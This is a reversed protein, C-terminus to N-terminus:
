LGPGSRPRSPSPAEQQALEAKVLAEIFEFAEAPVREILQKRRKKSIAGGNQLAWGILLHQDNSRLDFEENVARSIRDFSALFETEHRLDVNLAEEAMRFGFEVCPTADWYRYISPQGKFDFAFQDEDIWTVDWLKRAPKSFSQLALLYQEEHRKMAISVPLLLGPELQGSQCLAHHFQFRSLRGNGDMYPHLFVFGFSEVSAAVIPDIQKSLGNAMAMFAPMLSTLLDPAPPVYTVSSAGRLWNQEHRFCAARDYPNSLTSSQLDSLYQETLEINEHAQQLLAM